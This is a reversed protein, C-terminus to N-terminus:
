ERMFRYGIGSETVILVPHEPDEEIKKRLHGVHVRTYQTEENYAPGWVQELIYKHTLVKGAHRVFLSLLAYETATLKILEEGRSVSRSELDV